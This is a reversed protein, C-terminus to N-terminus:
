EFALYPNVSFIIRNDPNFALGRLLKREPNLSCVKHALVLLDAIEPKRFSIHSKDVNSKIALFNQGDIVV